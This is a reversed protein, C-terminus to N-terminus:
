PWKSSNNQQYNNDYIIYRIQDVRQWAVVRYVRDLMCCYLFNHKIYIRGVCWYVPQIAVVHYINVTSRHGSRPYILLLSLIREVAMLQLLLDLLIKLESTESNSSVFYSSSKV